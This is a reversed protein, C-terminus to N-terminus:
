LFAQKKNTQKNSKKEIVHTLLHTGFIVFPKEHCTYPIM